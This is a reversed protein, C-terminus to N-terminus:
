IILQKDIKKPKEFSSSEIKKIHKKLKLLKEKSDQENQTRKLKNYKEKGLKKMKNTKLGKNNELM